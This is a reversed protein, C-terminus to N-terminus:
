RVSGYHRGGDHLSASRNEGPRRLFANFGHKFALADSLEIFNRGDIPRYPLSGGNMANLIVRRDVGIVRAAGGISLPSPSLTPMQTVKQPLLGSKRKSAGFAASICSASSKILRSEM